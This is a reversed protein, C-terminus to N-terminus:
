QVGHAKLFSLIFERRKAKKPSSEPVSKLDKGYNPLSPTAKAREKFPAMNQTGPKKQTNHRSSLQKLQQDLLARASPTLKDIRAKLEADGDEGESSALVGPPRTTASPPKRTPPSLTTATMAKRAAPSEAVGWDIILDGTFGCQDASQQLGFTFLAGDPVRQYGWGQKSCGNDDDNWYNYVNAGVLSFKTAGPRQPIRVQITNQPIPEQNPGCFGEDGWNRVFFSWKEQTPEPMPTRVFMAYVPHLESTNTHTLDAGAMGILIVFKGDIMLHATTDDADVGKHHFDDWWTNTDDWNDVTEESNFELHVGGGAATELAQDTRRVNMYYDDDDWISSSHGEWAVTGEYTVPFWNMHYPIGTGGGISSHTCLGRGNQHISQSTCNPAANWTQPTDNQGCPCFTCIDPLSQRWVPNLGFGNDDTLSNSLIIDMAKPAPPPTPTPPAPTGVCNCEIEGKPQKGTVCHGPAVGSEVPSCAAGPNSCGTNISGKCRQANISAPSLLAMASVTLAILFFATPRSSTIFSPLHM